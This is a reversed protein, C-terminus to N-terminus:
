QFTPYEGTQPQYTITVVYYTSNVVTQVNSVAAANSVTVSVNTLTNPDSSFVDAIIILPANISWDVTM